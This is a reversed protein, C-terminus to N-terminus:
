AGPVEMRALAAPIATPDEAVADLIGLIRALGPCDPLQAELHTTLAEILDLVERRPITRPVTPM